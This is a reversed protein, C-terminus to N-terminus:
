AASVRGVCKRQGADEVWVKSQVRALVENYKLPYEPGHASAYEKIAEDITLFHVRGCVKVDTNGAAVAMFYGM